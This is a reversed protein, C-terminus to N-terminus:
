FLQAFVDIVNWHLLSKIYGLLGDIHGPYFEFLPWKQQLYYLFVKGFM